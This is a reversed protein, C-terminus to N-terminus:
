AMAESEARLAAGHACEPARHRMPPARTPPSAPSTQARYMECQVPSRPSRAPSRIGGPSRGSSDRRASPGAPKARLLGQRDSEWQQVTTLNRIYVDLAQSAARADATRRDPARWGPASAPAAARQSDRRRRRISRPRPTRVHGHPRAPKFRRSSSTVPSPCPECGIQAACWWHAECVRQAAAAARVPPSMPAQTFISTLSTWMGYPQESVTTLRGSSRTPSATPRPM